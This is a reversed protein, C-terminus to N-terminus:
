NEFRAESRADIHAMIESMKWRSSRGLKLPRPFEGREIDRYISARSRQLMEILTSVGVLSDIQTSNHMIIEKKPQPSSIPEDHSRRFSNM